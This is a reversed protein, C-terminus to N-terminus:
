TRHAMRLAAEAPQHNRPAETIPEDDVLTGDGGPTKRQLEQGQRQLDQLQQQTADPAAPQGPLQQPTAPLVTAQTVQTGDAPKGDDSLGKVEKKFINMAAGLSKAAGPLRTSGFLLLVVVLLIIIHPASPDFMDTGM